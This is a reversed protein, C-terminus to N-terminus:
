EEFTLEKGFTIYADTLYWHGAVSIKPGNALFDMIYGQKKGDEIWDFIYRYMKTSADFSWTGHYLTDNITYELTGNQNLLFSYSGNEDSGILKRGVVDPPNLLRM